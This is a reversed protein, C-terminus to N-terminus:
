QNKLSKYIWTGSGMLVVIGFLIAYNYDGILFYLISAISSLTVAIKDKKEM